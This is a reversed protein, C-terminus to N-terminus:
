PKRGAKLAINKLIAVIYSYKRDFEDFNLGAMM